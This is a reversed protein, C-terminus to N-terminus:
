NWGFHRRADHVFAAPLPVDRESSKLFKEDVAFGGASLFFNAGTIAIAEPLGAIAAVLSVAAPAIQFAFRTIKRVTLKKTTKKIDALLERMDKVAREISEPDTTDGRVFKEQWEVFATRRRRFEANGDVFEVTEKLLETSSMRKDPNPVFFEWALVTALAKAPLPRRGDSSTMGLEREIDEIKRFVPGIAAVGTVYAPLDPLLSMRTATYASDSVRQAALKAAEARYLDYRSGSTKWTVKRVVPRLVDLLQAQGTPDWGNKEWRAWDGAEPVPFVLRDFMMIDAALAMPDLHDKVSYTAWLERGM